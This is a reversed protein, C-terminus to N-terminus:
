LKRRDKPVFSRCGNEPHGIMVHYIGCMWPKEDWCQWQYYFECERCDSM